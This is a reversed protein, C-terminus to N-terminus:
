WWSLWRMRVVAAPVVVKTEMEMENDGDGRRWRVVMVRGVVVRVAELMVVVDGGEYCDSGGGWLIDWVVV